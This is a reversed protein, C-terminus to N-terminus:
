NSSFNGQAPSNTISNRRAMNKIAAREREVYCHLTNTYPLPSGTQIRQESWMADNSDVFSRVTEKIKSVKDYIANMNSDNQRARSLSNTTYYDSSPKVVSKQPSVGYRLREASSVRGRPAFNEQSGRM